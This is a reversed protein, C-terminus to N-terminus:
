KGGKIARMAAKGAEFPDDAAAAQQRGGGGAPTAAASASAKGKGGFVGGFLGKAKDTIAGLNVVEQLDEDWQVLGAVAALALGDADKSPDYGAAVLAREVQGRKAGEVIQAKLSAVEDRLAQEAQGAEGQKASLQRQLEAIKADKVTVRQTAKALDAEAKDARARAVEVTEGEGGAAGEGEGGEGGAAGESEGGAGGAGGAAGEGGAAAGEGEGASQCLMMGFMLMHLKYM